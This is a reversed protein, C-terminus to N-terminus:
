EGIPTATLIIRSHPLVQIEFKDGKRLQRSPFYYYYTDESDNMRVSQFLKLFLGPSSSYAIVGTIKMAPKDSIIQYMDLYIPVSEEYFCYIAIILLLIRFLKNIKKLTEHRLKKIFQSQPILIGTERRLGEYLLVVPLLTLFIALAIVLAYINSKGLFAFFLIILMIIVLVTHKKLKIKVM